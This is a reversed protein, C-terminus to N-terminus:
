HCTTGEPGHKGAGVPATLGATGACPTGTAVGEGPGLLPGACVDGSAVGAGASDADYTGARALLISPWGKQSKLIQM